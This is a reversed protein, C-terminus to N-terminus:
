EGTDRDTGGGADLVFITLAPTASVPVALKVKWGEKLLIPLAASVANGNEDNVEFRTQGHDDDGYLVRSSLGELVVVRQPM